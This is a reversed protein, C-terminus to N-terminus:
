SLQPDGLKKLNEYRQRHWRKKFTTTFEDLLLDVTEMLLNNFATQELDEEDLPQDFRGRWLLQSTQAEILYFKVILKEGAGCEVCAIREAQILFLQDVQLVKGMQSSINKDSIGTLAVTLTYQVSQYKLEANDGYRRAGEAISLFQSFESFKELREEVRKQAAHLLPEAVSTSSQAVALAVAQDLYPRNESVIYVNMNVTRCGALFLCTALIWGYTQFRQVGKGKDQCITFQLIGANFMSLSKYLKNGAKAVVFGQSQDRHAM